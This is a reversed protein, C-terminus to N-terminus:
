MYMRNKIYLLFQGMYVSIFSPLLSLLISIGWYPVVDRWNNLGTDILIIMTGVFLLVSLLRCPIVLLSGVTVFVFYLITVILDIVRFLVRM